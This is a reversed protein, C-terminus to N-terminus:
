AFKIVSCHIPCGENQFMVPEGEETLLLMDAIGRDINKLKRNPELGRLDYGITFSGDQEQVLKGYSEAKCGSGFYDTKEISRGAIDSLFGRVDELSTGPLIFFPGVYEKRVSYAADTGM